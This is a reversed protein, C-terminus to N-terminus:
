HKAAYKNLNKKLHKILQIKIKDLSIDKKTLLKMQTAQLNKYGCIDIFKFPELDMDVNLSLGHYTRGKKIRLGLSAIKKDKVYVGPANNKTYALIDYENLLNIVSKEITNVINKVSINLRKIDILLYAIIQGPAHYTIKGGRDSKIIPISINNDLNYIDGSIGQTIIPNHELLWIEDATSSNRNKTFELMSQWCPYYEILGKEKIKLM